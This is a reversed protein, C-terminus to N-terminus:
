RYRADIDSLMIPISQVLNDLRQLQETIDRHNRAMNAIRYCKQVVKCLILLKETCDSGIQGNTDSFGASDLDGDFKIIVDYTVMRTYNCASCKEKRPSIKEVHFSRTWMYEFLSRCYDRNTGQGFNSVLDIAHMLRKKIHFAALFERYTNETLAAFTEEVSPTRTRRSYRSM